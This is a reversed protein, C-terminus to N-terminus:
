EDITNEVFKKFDFQIYQDRSIDDSEESTDSNVPFVLYLGIKDSAENPTLVAETVFVTTDDMTEQSISQIICGYKERVLNFDTYESKPPIEVVFEVRNTETQIETITSCNDGARSRDLSTIESVFETVVSYYVSPTNNDVIDSFTLQSETM